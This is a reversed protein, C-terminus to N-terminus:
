FIGLEVQMKMLVQWCGQVNDMCAIEEHKKRGSGQKLIERTECMAGVM